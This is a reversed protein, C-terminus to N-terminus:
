YTITYRAKLEKEDIRLEVNGTKYGIIIDSYIREILDILDIIYVKTNSLSDKDSFSNWDKERISVVESNREISLTFKHMFEPKGLKLETTLGFRHLLSNRLSYIANREIPQMNTFNELARQIENTETPEPKLKNNFLGGFQELLILYNSISMFQFSHYTGEDFNNDNFEKKEYVGTKLNRGALKRAGKLLLIPTSFRVPNQSFPQELNLLDDIINM